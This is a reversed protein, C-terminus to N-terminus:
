VGFHEGIILTNDLCVIGTLAEYMREQLVAPPLSGGRWHCCTIRGPEACVHAAGVLVLRDAALSGDEFRQVIYIPSWTMNEVVAAVERWPGAGLRRMLRPGLPFPDILPSYGVVGILVRPRVPM